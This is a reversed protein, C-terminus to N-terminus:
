ALAPASAFTRDQQQRLTLLVSDGAIELDSPRIAAGKAVPRALVRNAVLYYPTTRDASLPAMPRMEAAVGAITHHHGVADLRTGAALDRTAVAVLDMRPAYDDPYTSQGLGVLDLVSTAAELGLLHRPLYIMATGADASVVHGKEALVSWSAPDQCAVTIFVGGAFSAEDAARLHHFVDLRRRGSLLGHPRAQSFLAAVEPIRAVPAHFPPTDSAFGCANAVLTMECLDPVAKLGYAISLVAARGACVAPLSREEPTWWAALDPVPVARGNSTVIGSAADFVFDYESSKGACCIDFGLTEAWTILDILLAPQDGDVPTIGVGAARAMHALMPGAVSDTEKTVLLVHRKAEIAKLAHRAAAEPHGTAEVLLQFPLDIVVDLHGAAVAHGADFAARADQATACLRITQPDVGAAALAAGAADASLDVVIMASLRRIFRAQALFSQGFAGGGVICTRIPTQIDAYRRHYNM